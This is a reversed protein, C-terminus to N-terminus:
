PCTEVTRECPNGRSETCPNRKSQVDLWWSVQFLGLGRIIEGRLELKKM